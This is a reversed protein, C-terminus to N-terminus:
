LRCLIGVNLTPIAGPTVCITSASLSSSALFFASASSILNLFTFFESHISESTQYVTVVGNSVANGMIVTPLVLKPNSVSDDGMFAEISCDEGTYDEDCFCYELGGNQVCSGRGNCGSLSACDGVVTATDTTVSTDQQVKSLTFVVDQAADVGGARHDDVLAGRDDRPGRALVGGTAGMDRPGRARGRQRHPLRRRRVRRERGFDLAGAPAGDREGRAFQLLSSVRVGRFRLRPFPADRRIFRAVRSQGVDGRAGVRSAHRHVVGHRLQRPWGNRIRALDSM